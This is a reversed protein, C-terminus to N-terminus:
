LPFTFALIKFCLFFIFPLFIFFSPKYFFHQINNNKLWETMDLEKHGWSKQNAQWEGDGPAQEFEHGNLWHHWGVMQDETVGKEEQKWDKGADPNELSDARWM